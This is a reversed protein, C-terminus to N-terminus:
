RAGARAVVGRVDNPEVRVDVSPSWTVPMPRLPAMRAIDDPSTAEIPIGAPATVWSAGGTGSAAGAASEAEESGVRIATGEDSALPSGSVAGAVAVRVKSLLENVATGFALGGAGAGTEREAARLVRFAVLVVVLVLVLVLVAM